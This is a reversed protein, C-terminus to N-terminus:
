YSLGYLFCIVLQSFGLPNTNLMYLTPSGQHSQHYLIQRCHLLGLNLGQTPFIGQLLSQCGVGTNRGLSNWPYLLSIPELGRPQFTLYSYAVLVCVYTNFTKGTAWFTFFRDAVCSVWTWDRPQSSGRSFSFAIWELIRAQLIGHVSSGPPSCDTPDCLTLYLQAVLLCMYLLEMFWYSFLSLLSGEYFFLCHWSSDTM